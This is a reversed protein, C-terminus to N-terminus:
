DSPRLVLPGAGPGLMLGVGPIMKLTKNLNLIETLNQFSLKYCSDVDTDTDVGPDIQTIKLTTNQDDVIKIKYQISCISGAALYFHGQDLYCAGLGM